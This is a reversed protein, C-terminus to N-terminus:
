SLLSCSMSHVSAFSPELGWLLRQTPALLGGSGGGHEKEFIQRVLGFQMWRVKAWRHDLKEILFKAVIYFPRTRAFMSVDNPDNTHDVDTM